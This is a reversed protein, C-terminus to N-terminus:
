PTSIVCLVGIHENVLLGHNESLISIIRNIPPFREPFSDLSKNNISIVPLTKEQVFILLVVLEMVAVVEIVVVVVM